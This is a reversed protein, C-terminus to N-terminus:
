YLELHGLANGLYSPAMFSTSTPAHNTIAHESERSAATGCHLLYAGARCFENISQLDYWILTLIFFLSSIRRQCCWVSICRLSPRRVLLNECASILIPTRYPYHERKIQLRGIRYKPAEACCFSPLIVDFPNLSNLMRSIALSASRQELCHKQWHSLMIRM